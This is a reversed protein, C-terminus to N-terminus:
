LQKKDTIGIEYRMKAFITIGVEMGIIIGMIDLIGVIDTITGQAVTITGQAVTIHNMIIIIMGEHYAIMYRLVM